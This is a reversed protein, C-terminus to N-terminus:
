SEDLKKFNCRKVANKIKGYILCGSESGYSFPCYKVKQGLLFTMRNNNKTYLPGVFDYCYPGDPIKSLLNNM